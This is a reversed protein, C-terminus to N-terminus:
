TTWSSASRVFPHTIHLAWRVIPVKRVDLSSKTARTIALNRSRTSHGSSFSTLKRALRSYSLRFGASRVEFEISCRADLHPLRANNEPVGSRRDVIESISFGLSNTRSNFYFVAPKPIWNAASRSCGESDPVCTVILPKTAPVVSGRDIDVVCDIRNGNPLAFEKVTPHGPFGILSIRVSKHQLAHAWYTSSREPGFTHAIYGNRLRPSSM